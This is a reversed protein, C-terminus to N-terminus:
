GDPALGNVYAVYAEGLSTLRGASRDYLFSASFEKQEDDLAFWFWWQVLRYDDAPYGTENRATLFYDFTATMFDAVEEPTFGFDHPMLFGHESVVLPRDAYGREAMWARFNVINERFVDMNAHDEVEYRIALDDSMGPPIGIGWSDQEERLIFTHVNWVDVPMPRGYKERYTELVVDLYAIRLPTPQSVGGIVVRASPDREKIFTYLIHYLEAYRQPTVNDQIVVDPENGIIWYAGPNSGIAAALEDWPVLVGAESVRIIQWFTVREAEPPEVQVQWAAYNGFRLGAALAEDVNEPSGTLGFRTLPSQPLDPAMELKALTPALTPLGVRTATVGAAPETATVATAAGLSRTSSPRPLETRSSLVGAPEETASALGRGGGAKVLGEGAPDEPQSFGGFYYFILSLGALFLLLSVGFRGSREM